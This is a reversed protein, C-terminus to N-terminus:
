TAAEVMDAVRAAGDSIGVTQAAARMRANVKPDLVMAESALELATPKLDEDRIVTAAGAQISQRANLAQEGNGHPLPVYLAPLGLASVECVTAAGSRCVVADAAAFATAMEHSYEEVHYMHRLETSLNARARTAPESKGTGTLHWVHVGHAVLTPVAAVVADNIRAAGLSGGTVLLVPAQPDWRRSERAQRQISARTSDDQLAKALETVEMRLPLGTLVGHRLPTGAFTVAVHPTMRAGLRNAMGPRANAEHVVIPVGRRRAALYAPASVYGGFGVVVTAEHTDIARGATAVAARLRGPVRVMAAGPRRPMPVKPVAELTLGARPVLDAELGEATGLAAVAHGRSQLEAATALLPNVHGATGGGALLVSAM